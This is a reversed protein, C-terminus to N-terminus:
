HMAVRAITPVSPQVTDIDCDILCTPCGWVFGLCLLASDLYGFTPRFLFSPGKITAMATNPVAMVADGLQCAGGLVRGSLAVSGSGRGQMPYVQHPLAVVVRILVSLHYFFGICWSQSLPLLANDVCPLKAFVCSAAM